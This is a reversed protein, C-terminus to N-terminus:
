RFRMKRNCDRLNFSPYPQQSIVDIIIKTLSRLPRISNTMLMSSHHGFDAIKESLNITTMHKDELMVYLGM